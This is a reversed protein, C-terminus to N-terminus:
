LGRNEEYFEKFFLRRARERRLAAIRDALGAKSLAEAFFFRASL